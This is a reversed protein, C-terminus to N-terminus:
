EVTFVVDASGVNGAADKVRLVIVYTGPKLAETQFQFTRMPGDFLGDDPFVSTWKKGNFTYSGATLRVLPSTATAEIRARGGEVKAKLQVVPPTHCVVFPNTTKEGTLAEADSNDKRDSAVVKFQYVGDPTTTSDWEYETKDFDEELQMWSKWGDKRVYLAFTLEDENADVATWKFKLKKPSELNVANLDPAEIKTVEPAQNANQYRLTLGRVDPTASLDETSLTLRYQLFRAPPAAILAKEPDSQEASWASWADDPEATNGSRVAVHVATKAPTEAEWRLAGWRSTMKTDLVESLVTGTACRRDELVYLKGPDGAGVLVSGDRRPCLCLAQGHDLRALETQERTAEQVEFLQGDMGAGVLFRGGRLALSLVMAKERFVERVTGDFGIRYVSNEGGSPASPAPVAVGKGDKFDGDTAATKAPPEEKTTAEGVVAATEPRELTLAAANVGGSPAGALAAGRRRTPVSAGVYVADAAVRITHVEAQPAQYLVFAKGKADIRYVLGGKDVGAYVAGDPGIATCLVHDQKVTCLVEAKGDPSIRYIRGHPGTGAYLTGTKVDAALSWVYPEGTECVTKAKGAADIRLIRGNPGSGVYVADDGAPAVCFPRSSEDSYVVSAKGETTIKFVKGEDGAAAFIVGDKVEALDWIHNADLDAFPHLERGLRIVGESSVVAGHFQAKEFSAPTRQDWVRVKAALCAPAAVCVAAIVVACPLRKKSM